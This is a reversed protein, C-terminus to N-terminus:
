CIMICIHMTQAKWTEITIQDFIGHRNFVKAEFVDKVGFYLDNVVVVLRVEKMPIVVM